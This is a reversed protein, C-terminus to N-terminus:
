ETEEATNEETEEQPEEASFDFSEQELEEEEEPEAVPTNEEKELIMGVMRHLAPSESPLLQFLRALLYLFFAFLVFDGAVTLVTATNYVATYIISPVSAVGCLILALSMVFFNLAPKKRGIINRCESLGYCALMLYAALQLLKVPANMQMAKDFYLYMAAFLAYVTPAVSLAARLAPLRDGRMTLAMYIFSSIESVLVAISIFRLYVDTTDHLAFATCIAAVALTVALFAGSFLVTLGRNNPAPSINRRIALAYIFLTLAAVCFLIPILKVPLPANAFYGSDADYGGFLIVCQLLIGALTFLPALLIGIQMPLKSYNKKM